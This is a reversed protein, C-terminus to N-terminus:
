NWRTRWRCRVLVVITTALCSDAGAALEGLHVRRVAHRHNSFGRIGHPQSRRGCHLCPGRSYCSLMLAVLLAAVGQYSSAMSKIRTGNSKHEDVPRVSKGEVSAPHEMGSVERSTVLPLKEVCEMVQLKDLWEELVLSLVPDRVSYNKSLQLTFLQQEGIIMCTKALVTCM